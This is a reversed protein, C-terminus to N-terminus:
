PLGGEVSSSAGGGQRQRRIDARRGHSLPPNGGLLAYVGKAWSLDRGRRTLPIKKGWQPHYFFGDEPDQLSDTFALIRKQMEAPLAKVTDHGYAEFLGNNKLAALVQGVTEIDPLFGEHDRASESYYFGGTAPDWLEALWKYFGDGYISMLDALAERTDIDM